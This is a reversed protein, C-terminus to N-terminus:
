PETRKINLKDFDKDFTVIEEIKEVNMLSYNFCDTFDINNERFMSISDSLLVKDKIKINPTSLIFEINDCIEERKWGYIRDLVWIIEAIVPNSTYAVLKGKVIDSFLKELKRSIVEDRKEFFSIFINSDIFIM